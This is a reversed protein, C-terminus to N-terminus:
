AIMKHRKSVKKINGLRRLDKLLRLDNLLEHHLEYIGHKHTIIAWRKGQPSLFIQHFM